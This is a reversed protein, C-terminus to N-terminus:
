KFRFGIGVVGQAGIAAADKGGGAPPIAEAKFNIYARGAQTDASYTVGGGASTVGAPGFKISGNADLGRVGFINAATASAEGSLKDSGLGSLKGSATLDGAKIGLDLSVHGESTVSTKGSVHTDKDGVRVGIIAATKDGEIAVGTEMKFNKVDIAQGLDLKVTGDPNVKLTGKFQIDKAGVAVNASGSAGAKDGEGAYAASAGASFHTSTYKLALSAQQVSLQQVKGLDLKGEGTLGKAIELKKTIEPLDPNALYAVAAAAIAAAILVEPRENTIVLLREKLAKAAPSAAITEADKKAQDTLMKGLLEIQSKGVFDAESSAEKVQAILLDVGKGALDKAHEKLKAEGLHESILKYM